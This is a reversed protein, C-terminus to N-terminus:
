QADETITPTSQQLAAELGAALFRDAGGAPTEVVARARLCTKLRRPPVSRDVRVARGDAGLWVLDLPFRMTFTHVSRCRPLHLAVGSPMADLRALGKLRSARSRAQAVRLGGPLECAPLGSLRATAGDM